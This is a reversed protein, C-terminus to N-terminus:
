ATTEKTGHTWQRELAVQQPAVTLTRWPVRSRGRCQFTLLSAVHTDPLQGLLRANGGLRDAVVLLDADQGWRGAGGGAVAGVVLSRQPAEAEDAGGLRDAEGQALDALDDGEAVVPLGGARMDGLQELAVGGVQLHADPLELLEAALQPLQGLPGGGEVRLVARGLAHAVDDGSVAGVRDSVASSKPSDPTWVRWTHEPTAPAQCGGRPKAWEDARRIVEWMFPLKADTYGHRDEGFRIALRRRVAEYEVAVERHARLYDRFLLAWQESFSGARRVHVHTRRRGPPERFYRKTREPNDARYVYGLWELPQKFAELPELAAVSVQVDIVPKAALGPVSTSGIHDIRLAVEGLGGRLERGLEAFREPWAPDYAVVEIRPPQPGESRPRSPAPDEM